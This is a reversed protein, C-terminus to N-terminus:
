RNIASTNENSIEVDAGVTAFSYGTVRIRGGSGHSPMIVFQPCFCILVSDVAHM